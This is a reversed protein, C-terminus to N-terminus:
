AQLRQDQITRGDTENMIMYYNKRRTLIWKRFVPIENPTQHNTLSSSSNGVDM